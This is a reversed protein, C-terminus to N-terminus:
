GAMNLRGPLLLLLVAAGAIVASVIYRLSVEQSGAASLLFTFLPPLVAGLNSVIMVAGANSRGETKGYDAAALFLYPIVTGLAGGALLSGMYIAPLFRAWGCLLQGAALLGFGAPLLYNKLIPCLKAYFAAAAAAGALVCFGAASAQAFGGLGAATILMSLNSSTVGSLGSILFVIGLVGALSKWSNKRFATKPMPFDAKVKNGDSRVAAPLTLGALLLGPIILLSALFAFRWHFHDALYGGLVILLMAGLYAALSQLGIARQKEEGQFFGTILGVAAPCVLGVGIGSLVAGALLWGFSFFYKWSLLGGAAFLAGGSLIAPRYLGKQCLREAAGGACIVGLSVAAPLTQALFSGNKQFGLAIPALVPTYLVAGMQVLSVAMVTLMLWRQKREAKM